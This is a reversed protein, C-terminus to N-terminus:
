NPLIYLMLLLSPLAKTPVQSNELVFTRLYSCKSFAVNWSALEKLDQFTLIPKMSENMQQTSVTYRNYVTYKYVYIWM